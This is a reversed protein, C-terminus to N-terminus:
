VLGALGSKRMAILQNDPNDGALAMRTAPDTGTTMPAPAQVPSSMENLNSTQNKMLEDMRQEIDGRKTMGEYTELSPETLKEKTFSGTRMFLNVNRFAGESFYNSMEDMSKSFTDPDDTLANITNHLYRDYQTRAIKQTVADGAGTQGFFYSLLKNANLVNQAAKTSFGMADEKFEKEMAMMPQTQSGTKIVSNADDLVGLLKSFSKIEEPDLMENLMEMMKPKQMKNSFRPVGQTLGSTLVNDLQSLIFQKKVAKFADPDVTQLLRRANRLSKISVDPDFLLKMASATQKDTMLKGFKGIVGKTVLELNTDTPDYVKRAQAYLPATDDMIQTLVGKLENVVAYDGGGKDQLGNIFNKVDTSRREHVSMLDDVLEGKVNGKKYFIKKFEQLNKVTTDSPTFAEGKGKGAIKADILNIFNQMEDIKIGDPYNDPGLMDYLRGGREKRRRGLEELVFEGAEKIRTNPDTITKSSGISDAFLRIAEVSQEAQNDYYRVIKSSEPQQSVFQQILKSKDGFKTAQAPTLDIGFEKAVSIRKQVDVDDGLALIRQLADEKGKFKGMLRAVGVTGTGWPFLSFASSQLLDYYANSLDSAGESYFGNILAQEGLREAGGVLFNGAFGGIGTAGLIIASKAVPHPVAQSLRLGTQFGKKAGAIGGIVDATLTTAPALYSATTDGWFGVMDNNPFELSYKKGSSTLDSGQPDEYYLNGEYKLYKNAGTQDNPFRQSALYDIRTDDGVFLSSKAKRMFYDDTERNVVTQKDILTDFRTQLDESDAM